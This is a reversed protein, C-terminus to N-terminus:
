KKKKNPCQRAYHGMKHCSFFKVKSMDKKQEGKRKAGGKPGKIMEKNNGILLIDDVYLLLIFFHDRVYKFYICHDVKSRIFGLGLMHTDFNQYWMWTSILSMFCFVYNLDYCQSYLITHMVELLIHDLWTPKKVAVIRGSPLTGKYVREFGGTGICYKKDFNVTGKMIDKLMNRSESNWPLAIDTEEDTIKTPKRHRWWIFLGGALALVLLASSSPLNVAGCLDLEWEYSTAPSNNFEKTTPVAGQLENYSVDISSLSILDEYTSPIRVTLHNQSLNMIELRNLKGLQSSITGSLSNHSLDLIIQFFVLNGISFPINGSLNNRELGLSILITCKSLEPAIEGSFKNGWISFIGISLRGLEPPM